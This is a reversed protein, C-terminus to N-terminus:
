CVCTLAEMVTVNTPEFGEALMNQFITMAEELDESQVYGDIM